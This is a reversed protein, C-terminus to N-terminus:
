RDILDRLERQNILMERTMLGDIARARQRAAEAEFDIPKSPTEARAPASSGDAPVGYISRPGSPQADQSLAIPGVIEVKIPSAPSQEERQVWVGFSQAM